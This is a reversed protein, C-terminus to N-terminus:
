RSCNLEIIAEQLLNVMKIDLGESHALVTRLKETVSQVNTSPCMGVLTTKKLNHLTDFDELDGGSVSWVLGAIVLIVCILQVPLIKM